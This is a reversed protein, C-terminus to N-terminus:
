TWFRLNADCLTADVLNRESGNPFWEHRDLWPGFEAGVIEDDKAEKVFFSELSGILLDTLTGPNDCDCLRRSERNADNFISIRMATTSGTPM